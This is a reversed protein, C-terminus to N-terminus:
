RTTWWEDLPIEKLRSLFVQPVAVHALAAEVEEETVAFSSRLPLSGEPV